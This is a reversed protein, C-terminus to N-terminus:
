AMGYGAVSGYPARRRGRRQVAKVHMSKLRTYAAQYLQDAYTGLGEEGRALAARKLGGYALVTRAGPILIPETADGTFQPLQAGYCLRLTTARTCGLTVIAMGDNTGGSTWMWYKVRDQQFVDPLHEEYETMDIYANDPQGLPKEWMKYPVLLDEPLFDGSGAPLSVFDLTTEGAALDHTSFRKVISSAANVLMINLDLLEANIFAVLDSDPWVVGGAVDRDDTTQRILATISAFDDRAM